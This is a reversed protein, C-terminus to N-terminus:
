LLLLSKRIVIYARSAPFVLIYYDDSQRSYYTVQRLILRVCDLPRLMPGLIRPELQHPRPPLSDDSEWADLQAPIPSNINLPANELASLKEIVADMKGVEAERDFHLQVRNLHEELELAYNRELLPRIQVRLANIRAVTEEFEAREHELKSQKRRLIGKWDDSVSDDENDEGSHLSRRRLVVRELRRFLIQYPSFVRPMKGNAYNRHEVVLEEEEGEEEGPETFWPDEEFFERM